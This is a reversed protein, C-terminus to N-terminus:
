ASGHVRDLVRRYGRFPMEKLFRAVRVVTATSSGAKEAIARYSLEGADLLRAVLWRESLAKIEAPTCLDALFAEAEGRTKLALLADYLDPRPQRGAAAKAM